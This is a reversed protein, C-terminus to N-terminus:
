EIRGPLFSFWGTDLCSGGYIDKGLRLIDEYLTFSFELMREPFLSGDWGQLSYELLEQGILRRSIKFIEYQTSECYDKVSM